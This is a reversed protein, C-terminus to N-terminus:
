ESVSAEIAAVIDGELYILLSNLSDDNPGYGFTFDHGHLLEKWYQPEIKVVKSSQGFRQAASAQKARIWRPSGYLKIVKRYSDGIGLGESTLVNRFARRPEINVKCNCGGKIELSEVFESMDKPHDSATVVLCLGNKRISYCLQRANKSGGYENIVKKLPLENPVICLDAICSRTELGPASSATWGSGLLYNGAM